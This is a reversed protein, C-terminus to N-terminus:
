AAEGLRQLMAHIARIQIAHQSYYDPTEADPCSYGWWDWCGEPNQTRGDDIGEVQPYLVVIDNADAIENYGTTTVYRNGYPPSNAKDPLGDVLNVYSAGQKCGHLAVHVRPRESKKTTPPVYVYGLRSMSARSDHGFFPRQDFALLRGRPPGDPPQLGDHIHDLIQWSQMSPEGWRNLYPPENASLPNDEPNTTLLAHGAPVKDDFLINKPDVGLGEYFARTSEVVASDVVKDESGTFIYLRAKELHRLPDILGADATKRAIELLRPVKPGAEPILPNMCIFYANQVWADEAIASANPFSEVCRYPGGAVVGAGIFMSSHALHLQVTMFAGSSLGSVSCQTLDAHLAPLADVGPHVSM